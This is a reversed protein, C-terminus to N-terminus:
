ASLLKEHVPDLDAATYRATLTGEKCGVQYLENTKSLVVVLLNRADAAGRDVDPVKLTANQGIELEKLLHKARRTMKKALTGQGAAAIQRAELFQSGVGAEDAEVEGRAGDEVASAAEVEGRAGNEVASGAEVECRSGDEVSSGAVVVGM